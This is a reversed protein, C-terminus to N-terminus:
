LRTSIRSVFAPDAPPHFLYQRGIPTPMTKRILRPTTPRPTANTIATNITTDGETTSAAAILQTCPDVFKLAVPDQAPPTTGVEASVASNKFVNVATCFGVSVAPIETKPILM